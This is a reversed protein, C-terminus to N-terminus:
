PLPVVILLVEVLISACLTSFLSRLVLIGLRMEVRLIMKSWSLLILTSVSPIICFIVFASINPKSMVTSHKGEERISVVSIPQYVVVVILDIQLFQLCNVTYTPDNDNSNKEVHGQVVVQLHALLDFDTLLQMFDHVGGVVFGVFDINVLLYDELLVDWYLVKYLHSVLSLLKHERIMQPVFHM